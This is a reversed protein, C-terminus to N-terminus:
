EGPTREAEQRVAAKVLGFVLESRIGRPELKGQPTNWAFAECTPYM